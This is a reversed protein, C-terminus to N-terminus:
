TNVTADSIFRKDVDDFPRFIGTKSDLSFRHECIESQFRSWLESVLWDFSPKHGGAFHLSTFLRQPSPERGIVADASLSRLWLTAVPQHINTCHQFCVVRKDTVGLGPDDDYMSALLSRLADLGSKSDLHQASSQLAGVLFPPTLGTRGRKQWEYLLGAWKQM